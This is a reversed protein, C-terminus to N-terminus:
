VRLPLVSSPAHAGHAAAARGAPALRDRAVIWNPPYAETAVMRDPFTDALSALVEGGGTGLDVATRAGHLVGRAFDEYSWPAKDESIRREVHGFDWGSFPQSEESAWAAILVAEDM